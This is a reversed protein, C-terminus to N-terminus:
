CSSKGVACVKDIFPENTALGEIKFEPNRYFIQLEYDRSPINNLIFTKDLSIPTSIIGAPVQVTKTDSKVQTKTIPDVLVVQVEIVQGSTIIVLGQVGEQINPLEILSALPVFSSDSCSFWNWARVNQEFVIVPVQLFREELNAFTDIRIDCVLEGAMPRIMIQYQDLFGQGIQTLDVFFDAFFTVAFIIVILFIAIGILAGLVM